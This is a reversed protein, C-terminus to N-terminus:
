NPRVDVPVTEPARPQAPEAEGSVLHDFLFFFAQANPLATYAFTIQGAGFLRGLWGAAQFKESRLTVVGRQLTVGRLDSISWRESKGKRTLSFQDAGLEIDIGGDVAFRVTGGSNLRDLSRRLFHRTWAEEAATAFYYPDNLKPPPGDKNRYAGQVIFSRAGGRWSYNYTTNTYVGNTYHRTERVRLEAMDQFPMVEVSPPAQRSGKLTARVLGEKGVYSLRHTFGSAAMAILFALLGFGIPWVWFWVPSQVDALRDIGYGVAAAIVAAILAIMRRKGPATPQDSETLSTEASVVEGIEPPPTVFFDANAALTGNGHSRNVPRTNPTTAM